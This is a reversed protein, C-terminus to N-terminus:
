PCFVLPKLMKNNQDLHDGYSCFLLLKGPKVKKNCSDAFVAMESVSTERSACGQMGEVHCHRDAAPSLFLSM